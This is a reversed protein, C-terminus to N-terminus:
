AWWYGGQMRAKICMVFRLTPLYRQGRNTLTSVFLVIPSKKPLYGPIWEDFKLLHLHKEVPNQKRLGFGCLSDCSDVM